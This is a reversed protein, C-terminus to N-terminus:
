FLEGFAESAAAAGHEALFDDATVYIAPSLPMGLVALAELLADLLIRHRVFLTIMESEIREGGHPKMQMRCAPTHVFIGECQRNRGVFELGFVGHGSDFLRRYSRGSDEYEGARCLLELDEGVRFPGVPLELLVARLNALMLLDSDPITGRLLSFSIVADGDSEASLFAAVLEPDANSATIAHMARRTDPM